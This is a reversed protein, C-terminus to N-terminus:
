YILIIIKLNISKKTGNNNTKSQKNAKRINGTKITAITRILITKIIM